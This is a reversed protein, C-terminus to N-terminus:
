ATLNSGTDAAPVAMVGTELAPDYLIVTPRPGACTAGLRSAAPAPRARARGGHGAEARRGGPGRPWGGRAAMDELRALGGKMRLYVPHTSSSTTSTPRLYTAYELYQNVMAAPQGPRFAGDIAWDAISSPRISRATTSTICSGRPPRPRPSTSPPSRRPTGPMPSRPSNATLLAWRSIKPGSGQSRHPRSSNRPSSPARAPTDWIPRFGRLEYLEASEARLLSVGGVSTVQGAAILRVQAAIAEEVAGARVPGALHLAAAALLLMAIVRLRAFLDRM